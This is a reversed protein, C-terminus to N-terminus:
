SVFIILYLCAVASTQRFTSVYNIILQAM